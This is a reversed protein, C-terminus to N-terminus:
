SINPDIMYNPALTEIAEAIETVPIKLSKGQFNIIITNKEYSLALAHEKANPLESFYTEESVEDLFYEKNNLAELLKSKQVKELLVNNEFDRIWINNRQGLYIIGWQPLLGENFAKKYLQIKSVSLLQIAKPDLIKMFNLALCGVRLNTFGGPGNIAIIKSFPAQQHEQVLKPGLSEEIKERKLRLIKEERFLSISDSSLNILTM